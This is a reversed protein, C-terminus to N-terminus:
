DIFLFQTCCQRVVFGPGNPTFCLLNTTRYHRLCQSDFLALSHCSVSSAGKVRSGWTTVSTTGREVYFLWGERM